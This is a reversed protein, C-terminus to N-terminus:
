EAHREVIQNISDISIQLTESILVKDVGSNVLLVVAAEQKRIAEQKLRDSEQRQLDAEEKQLDAKQRLLESEQRKLDAKEIQLNAEKLADYFADMEAQFVDEMRMYSEIDPAQVASQLRKVVPRYKEPFDVENVNMIHQNSDKNEQDFISLLIEIEDRRNKKLAPINVIIGEHYLSNIFHDEVFLRDGTYGNIIEKRIRIVPVGDFSDNITEGLFYISII